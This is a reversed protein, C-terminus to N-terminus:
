LPQLRYLIIKLPIKFCSPTQPTISASVPALTVPTYVPPNNFLEEALEQLLIGLICDELLGAGSGAGFVEETSGDFMSFEM